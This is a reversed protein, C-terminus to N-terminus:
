TSVGVERLFSTIRAALDTPRDWLAGDGPVENVMRTTPILRWYATAIEMAHLPDGARAVLLTPAAVAALDAPGDLLVDHGVGDLAAAVVSGDRGPVPGDPAFLARWVGQIGRDRIATALDVLDTRRGYLVVPHLLVLAACRDPRRRAFALAAASGLSGGVAVVPDPGDDFAAALAAFTYSEPASSTFPDVYAADLEGALDRARGRLLGECVVIRTV